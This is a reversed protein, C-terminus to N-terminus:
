KRLIQKLTCVDFQGGGTKSHLMRHCTPCVPVLMDIVAALTVKRGGAPFAHVPDLHHLEVIDGSIRADPKHWGCVECHLFGDEGRFVERARQRLADCRQRAERDVPKMAGELYSLSDERLEDLDVSGVDDVWKSWDQKIAARVQSRWWDVDGDPISFVSFYGQGPRRPENEGVILGTVAPLKQDRLWEALHGLGQSRLSNGWHFGKRLLGLRDHMEKYGCFTGEDSPRFRGRRIDGVLLELIARGSASLEM